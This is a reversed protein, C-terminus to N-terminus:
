PAASTPPATTPPAETTPPTYEGIVVSVTTGPLLSEGATPDQDIVLGNQAADAVPQSTVSIELGRESLAATADDEDM